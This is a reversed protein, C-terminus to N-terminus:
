RWEVPRMFKNGDYDEITDPMKAAEFHNGKIDCSDHCVDRVADNKRIPPFCALLRKKPFYKRVLKIAPVIDTDGGILMATDYSDLFADAVLHSAIASDTMKEEFTRWSNNCKSCTRSKQYFVGHIIESDSYVRLAELYQDQRRRKDTPAKVRATFYKVDRLEHEATLLAQILRYPDIWYFQRWRKEKLGHYLNFGDIYACVRSM